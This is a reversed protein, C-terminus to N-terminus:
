RCSNVQVSAIRFSDAVRLLNLLEDNFQAVSDPHLPEAFARDHIEALILAHRSKRHTLEYFGGHYGSVERVLRIRRVQIDERALVVVRVNRGIERLFEEARAVVLQM